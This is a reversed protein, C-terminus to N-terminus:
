LYSGEVPVSVMYGPVPPYAVFYFFLMLAGGLSAWRTLLGFILGSGVLIMGWINIFDIVSTFLTSEAMVNFIPAFIWRSGSLFPASTWNGAIIKAVGEYLFHWGILIRVTTYLWPLILNFDTKTDPKM